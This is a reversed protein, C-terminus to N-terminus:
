ATHAPTADRYGQPTVGYQRRFARRATETSNFGAQAALRGFPAASDRLGASISVLRRSRIDLALTQMETEYLRHVYRVSITLAKAISGPGLHPDSLNSEIHERILIRLEEDTDRIEAPSTVNQIEARVLDVIAHAALANVHSRSVRKGTSFNRILTALSAVLPPGQLSRASMVSLPAADTHLLDLPLYATVTRTAEAASYTFEALTRLFVIQGAGVTVSRGDQSVVIDGAIVLIVLLLDRPNQRIRAAGRRATYPSATVDRLIIRGVATEVSTSRFQDPDPAELDCLWGLQSLGSRGRFQEIFPLEYM